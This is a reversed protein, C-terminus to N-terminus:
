GIQSYYKNTPAETQALMVLSNNDLAAGTSRARLRKPVPKVCRDVYTGEVNKYRLGVRVSFQEWM